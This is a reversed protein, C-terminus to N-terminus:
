KVYIKQGDVINLGKQLSKMQQGAVNFIAKAAKQVKTSNIATAVAEKAAEIQAAEEKEEETATSADFSLSCNDFYFKQALTKDENLNFAFSQLGEPANGQFEFDQWKDTVNISTLEGIYTGPAKHTQISVKAAQEARVSFKLTYVEGAPFVHSSTIFFQTHWVETAQDTSTTVVATSGDVGEGAAQIFADAQGMERCVLSQGESGECDGNWVLDLWEEVSKPDKPRKVWLEIDDFYFNNALKTGTDSLNFALTYMGAPCVNNNWSASGVSVVASTFPAWETTVTINGVGNNHMYGGPKNHSQSSITQERDAKVKMKLVFETGATFAQDAPVTIFFQSDWVQSPNANTGVIICSEGKDVLIRADVPDGSEPHRTGDDWYDNAKFNTMDNANLNGNKIVNVFGEGQAFASGAVLAAAILTFFKKM